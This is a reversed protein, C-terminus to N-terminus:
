TCSPTRTLATSARLFRLFTEHDNREVCRGSVEGSHVALAALLCTTGHRRLHGDPAPSPRRADAARAAHPRAGPDADERRRLRGPANTPPRPLPRPDGGAQGRSPDPSRGCWYATRHPASRGRSSATCRPTGLGSAGALRRMSWRSAGDPPKSTALRDRRPAGRPRIQLPRGSRPRDALGGLGRLTAGGGPPVAQPTLGTAASIAAVDRRCRCCCSRRAQWLRHEGRRAAGWRRLTAEDESSVKVRFRQGKPV